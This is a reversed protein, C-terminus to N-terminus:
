DLPDVTINEDSTTTEDGSNCLFGETEMEVAEVLPAEYFKLDKKDM